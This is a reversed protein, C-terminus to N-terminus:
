FPMEEDDAVAAATLNTQPVPDAAQAAQVPPPGGTAAPPPPTTAAPAQVVAAEPPTTVAPTPAAQAVTAAQVEVPAAPNPYPPPTTQAPVTQAAVDIVPATPQPPAAQAQAPAPNAQAQPVFTPAAEPTVDIPAGQAAPAATEESDEANGIGLFQSYTNVAELCEAQLEPSVPEAHIARIEPVYYYEGRANKEPRTKLSAWVTFTGKKQLFFPQVFNDFERCAEKRVTMTAISGDQFRVIAKRMESCEPAKKQGGGIDVFKSRPCIRCSSCQPHSVDTDPTKGNSSKCWAEVKEGRARMATSTDYDPGFWRNPRVAMIIVKMEKANEGTITNYFSGGAVGTETQQAMTQIIKLTPLRFNSLDYFELGPVVLGAPAIETTM